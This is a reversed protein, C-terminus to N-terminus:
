TYSSTPDPLDLVMGGPGANVVLTEGLRERHTWCDHIHGCVVIPPKKETICDLVSTSGVSQGSANIDVMGKPPSHSVLVAGAPCGSLLDAAQAETFDWSWAGFPTVPVGGGLGFFSRGDITTGTGHLVRASEWPRCAKSLEEVTEGNGAVLVAPKEIAALVGVVEDLGQHMTCLDGAGIVVDAERSLEVLRACAGLDRHVDSFVLLRM